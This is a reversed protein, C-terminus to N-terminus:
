LLDSPILGTVVFDSVSVYTVVLGTCGVFRQFTKKIDIMFM